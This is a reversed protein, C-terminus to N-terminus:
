GPAGADLGPAAVEALRARGWAEVADLVTAQRGDVDARRAEALEALFGPGDLEGLTSGPAFRARRYDDWAAAQTADLTEPWNRAQYRFLLDVCRGDTFRGALSALERPPTGRVRPFLRRDAEPLFGEYLAADADVVAAERPAALLHVCAEVFGPRERLAAIHREARSRDLGLAELERDRVHALPLVAPCRNAEIRKIPLRVIDDPLDGRPTFLRDALASADLGDFSAPDVSLDYVVVRNEIAPDRGLPAVLAAHRSSAPLRGSVHLVPTHGAVDLLSQVYRKNRLKLVYDWFKPQVARLRRALAVLARVDSLAEHAMGERVGNATALDELRFSTFGDARTPWALGEPRLAHALRLVDLLDWRSNGNRWEREYADHFNRYLTYRVFEDDFRLNNYGVSCTGPMAILEHVRGIFDAEVVGDRDAQQPTIGTITAAIPSPLLDHAPRCFLSVPDDVEVLDEDTRVAAFQAIRSRRPDRGFTELDYWLFGM